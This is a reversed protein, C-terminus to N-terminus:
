IDSPHKQLIKKQFIIVSENDTHVHRSFNQSEPLFKETHNDFSCQVHRNSCESFYIKQKLFQEKQWVKRTKFSCTEAKQFLITLLFKLFANQKDVTVNWPFFSSKKAFFLKENNESMWRTKWPPELVQLRRTWLFTKFFKEGLFFFKTDNKSLFSESM